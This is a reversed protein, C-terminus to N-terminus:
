RGLVENRTSAAIAMVEGILDKAVGLDQLTAQLHGAVADFHKDSLGHKVADAHADRLKRGPYNPLGGFAYTLFAKQKAIQQKMDSKAFFPKLLSDAMIKQYFKDVAANVAPAGGLREYLSAPM